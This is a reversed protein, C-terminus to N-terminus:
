ACVVAIVSDIVRQVDFDSMKPFLPLSLAQEYYAETKPFDTAKYGYTKRYYPQAYVPIYLVQSGVGRERLQAMVAARDKGIARFDIMVVYLHFCSDAGPTEYPIKLHPENKFAENYRAVIDRRRKKFDGLKKMQSRGLAAQVDTLRYNYGLNVMEHFWPGPNKSLRAPDKEIGHTRLLRLKRFLSEDNTTVAGGEGTTITKVPHFSFITMDSYACSGIARGNPYSSGIAHAADEILYLGNKDALKRIAAMDAPQGAFDVPIVVKTKENIQMMIQAPDICYTREDIDAFRPVHGNYALCNASAVFTNPSTIGESGRELELAAVAIHLAATANCVAVCYKAGTAEAIESEFLEVEPGQTLFSSNLAAVVAKVDSDDIWQRGYPLIEKPINM